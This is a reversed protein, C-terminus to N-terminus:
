ENIFKKYQEFRDLIEVVYNAPEEGRVYGSKVVPDTYYKRKSKLLLYHVVDKWLTPNKGFKKALRQADRVHGVGANYSALVFKIRENEDEIEDDWYRNLWNLFNTGGIINQGPDLPDEAGFQKGTAPLLQMLGVAGAWSEAKPDFKSEQFVLSALLRWDWGILVARKKLLDDYDSIRGGTKSYFESTVRKRFSRPSKFYKDYIFFFDGTKKVDALWRNVADLLLPSNKRVAWALRQHFSIATRVDINSYYAQNIRAINEDAVTFDIEGTSVMRILEETEVDGSVTQIRIDGGIEESLHVLRQYYSSGVRVHVTEGILDIPDRILARNIQHLKMTQWNDPQRQVLVQQTLSLHDTFEVLQQRDKTITLSAAVIDGEGKNLMNLLENMDSAIVIKLQVGLARALSSLLEYEFGMEQGKYIFYSTASYGTIAYLTGLEKIGELDHHIPSKELDPSEKEGECGSLLLLVTLGATWAKTKRM